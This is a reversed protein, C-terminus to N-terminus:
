AEQIKPPIRPNQLIPLFGTFIWAAVVILIFLFKLGKLM